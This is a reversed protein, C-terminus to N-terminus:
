GLVEGLIQRGIDPGIDIAESLCELTKTTQNNVSTDQNGPSTVTISHFLYIPVLRTIKFMNDLCRSGGFSSQKV